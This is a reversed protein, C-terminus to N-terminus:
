FIQSRAILRKSRRALQLLRRQIQQGIGGQLQARKLRQRLHSVNPSGGGYRWTVYAQSIEAITGTWEPPHRDGYEQAYELPTLHAPKRFGQSALEQLMQQYVAEMPPLQALWRRNRWSQWAQSGLWGLFSLGTLAGLGTLIGLWGQTFLAILGGIVRGILEFLQNLVGTVPSPLWSAVWSWFQKLIGFAQSEEVSPPILEHGPIADFTFWGYKHFYVETMAYADTNKVVYYGTFPNFEGPAFGMVLRAPIGISRLMVTLVTAFHDAYGGEYKFLFAEVLDEDPSLFPLDSLLRYQQKLAQALYLATESPTTLPKPSTALLEKAKQQIRPSITKPLPLYYDRISPPYATSSKRLLTRDRYPVQSVVTYTLGESLPVPSRLGGEPDIAANQTPFYLQKAEFLAPILNPLNAVITYSQIIERTKSLTVVDPLYFRYTWNSRQLTQVQSEANRSIEWGQGTYRDFALVRWFGPAQSRVRMVVKPKMIGRLNQNIKSNFGYYFEEDVQGEGNRSGTGTGDRGEQMYGPNVVNSSDFRENVQIPSSVPFSRMQYGPVRPLLMFITLGLSVVILLVAGLRKPALDFSGGKFGQSVLGLRSRYDLVLTPLAIALFVLLLPAFALTQSLTAAVGLLILGIVASYGLDKRRPLDFSHLVQLHILLTALALRTDNRETWLRVFFFALALLMGIAICFKVPINRDRRRYGSWGAGVFSLPVAWLSIGQFDISEAIALDTAIIGITVLIQVLVRLPISDEPSSPPEALRQQMRKLLTAPHLSFSTHAAQSPHSEALRRPM